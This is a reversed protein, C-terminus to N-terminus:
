REHDGKGPRRALARLAVVAVAVCALMALVYPAWSLRGTFLRGTETQLARLGGLVLLTLGIALMVAGALGMGLYPGIRKLPDLTEQRAYGVVLAWLEQTLAPLNKQPSGPRRQDAPQKDAPQATHPPQPM